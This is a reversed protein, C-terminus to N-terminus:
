CLTRRVAPTANLAALAEGPVNDVVVGLVVLIAWEVGLVALRGFIHLVRSCRNGSEISRPMVDAQVFVFTKHHSAIRHLRIRHSATDNQAPPYSTKMERKGLRPHM